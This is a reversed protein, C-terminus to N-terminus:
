LGAGTNRLDIRSTTYRYVRDSPNLVVSTRDGLHNYNPRTTVIFAPTAATGVGDVSRDTRASVNITLRTLRYFDVGTNATHATLDNGSVWNYQSSGDGDADTWPAERFMRAAIQLDAFGIGMDQWDNAILGGSTSQQLVGLASRTSDIRYGRGRFRYVMTQANAGHATQVSACHGNGPNGWPLTQSLNLLTPAVLTVQVLCSTFKPIVRAAIEGTVNVADTATNVLVVLEGNVFPNPNGATDLNVVTSTFSLVRAQTGGEVSFFYVEDPSNSNNVIQIPRQLQGNARMFGDAMQFGAQRADQALLNQASSLVGQLAAVQQQRRYASSMRSFVSLVMMVLISSIALAVMLEILTFGQQGRARRRPVRKGASM